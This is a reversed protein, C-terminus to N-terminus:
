YAAKALTGYEGQLESAIKPDREEWFRSTPGLTERPIAHFLITETLLGASCVTEGLENLIFSDGM